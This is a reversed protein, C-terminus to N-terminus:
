FRRATQAPTIIIARYNTKSRTEVHQVPNKAVHEHRIGIKYVRHM